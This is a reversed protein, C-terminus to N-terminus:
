AAAAIEKITKETKAVSNRDTGTATPQFYEWFCPQSLKWTAPTLRLMSFGQQLQLDPWDFDVGSLGKLRGMYERWEDKGLLDFGYFHYSNGSLILMGPINVKKLAEQVEKDGEWDVGASFDIMPIHMEEGEVLVQSTLGVARALPLGKCIEELKMNMWTRPIDVRSKVPSVVWHSDDYKIRAGVEHQPTFVAFNYIEAGIRADLNDLIETARKDVARFGNGPERLIRFLEMTNEAGYDGSYYKTKGSRRRKEVVYYGLESLKDPLAQIEKLWYPNTVMALNHHPFLLAIHHGIWANGRWQRQYERETLDLLVRPDEQAKIDLGIYCEAPRNTLTEQWHVDHNRFGGPIVCNLEERAALLAADFDTLHPSGAIDTSHVVM